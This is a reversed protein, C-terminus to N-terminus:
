KEAFKQSAIERYLEDYRRAVDKLDFMSEAKKRAACRLICLREEDELVWRIGRALDGVDYPRALYGNRKHELQDLLGGVAFAVVPTGSALSELCVNPFNESRSPVVMVDAANYLLSLSVDDYLRGTYTTPMGFDHPAVPKESGFVVIHATFNEDAHFREMAERLLDFGKNWDSTAGMAGFLIMKGDQPVNLIDRALRKDLPRYRRLDVGNPIVRIDRGSFLASSRAAEALWRSPAVIHMSDPYYKRKRRYVRRAIDFRAGENLEPCDHCGAEYRVCDFPIHCGGTFPWSDHLLWVMPTKIQKLRAIDLFGGNIWHLQIVDFSAESLFSSVVDFPAYGMSWPHSTGAHFVERILPEIRSNVAVKLRNKKGKPFVVDEDGSLNKQALFVSQTGIARLGQHIRMAAIAAGGDRDSTNVHLVRM